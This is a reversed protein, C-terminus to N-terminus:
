VTNQLNDQMQNNSKGRGEEFSMKSSKVQDNM